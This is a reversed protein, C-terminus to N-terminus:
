KLLECLLEAVLRCASEACGKAAAYPTSGSAPAGSDGSHRVTVDCLRALRTKLRTRMPEQTGSAVPRKSGHALEMRVPRYTADSRNRHCRFSHLLALREQVRCDYDPSYVVGLIINLWRNPRVPLAISLFPMLSPVIMVGAMGLLVGQSIAGFPMRGSIMERLKGTEYLEIYDGYIYLFM